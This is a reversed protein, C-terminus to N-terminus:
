ETQTTRERIADLMSKFSRQFALIGEKELQDTTSALSIGCRALDASLTKASDLEDEIRIAPEGHDRYAELTAPPMTNITDRGILPEVYYTDPYAPDKTSTSAWLPRQIKAGREALRLFRSSEISSLFAQYAMRTNAIAAKGRLSQIESAASEGEATRQDLQRDIMTDLRSVFFSAVSSVKNLPLGQAVRDDLGSLYADIVSRYRDVSFLLTVNVNIGQAISQRIAELGAVTGPIKIMLNPRNVLNWLRQAERLTSQPNDSLDPSVELSVFGCTENSEDFVGRLIDAASRIDEIAM